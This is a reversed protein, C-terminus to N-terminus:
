PKESHAAAPAPTVPAAGAALPKFETWKIVLRIPIDGTDKFHLDGDSRAYDPFWYKGEVNERYTEFNVFPLDAAKMDGLDTVWKGYTKVVELYQKDVWVVGQFLANARELLKPKAEFIYCDIEDVKESGVFRLDYKSLQSRVLPYAPIRAIAKLDGPSINIARLTPTPQDIVKEFVRGESDIVAVVTLQFEGSPQGDNGFETLKITKKYGYDGRARNFQDEKEAFSKVIEAPAMAPPPETPQTTTVRHVDHEPPPTLPGNADQASLPTGGYISIAALLATKQLAKMPLAKMLGNYKEAKMLEYSARLEAIAAQCFTV